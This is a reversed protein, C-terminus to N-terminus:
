RNNLYRAKTDQFHTTAKYIWGVRFIERASFNIDTGDLRIM